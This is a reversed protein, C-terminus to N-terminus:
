KPMHEPRTPMPIESTRDVVSGLAAGRVTRKGGVPVQRSARPLSPLPARAPMAASALSHGSHTTLRGYSRERYEVNYVVRPSQQLGDTHPWRHLYISTLKYTKFAVVLFSLLIPLRIKDIKIPRRFIKCWYKHTIKETKVQQHTSFSIYDRSAGAHKGLSVGV